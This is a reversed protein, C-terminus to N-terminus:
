EQQLPALLHCSDLDGLLQLDGLAGGAPVELGQRHGPYGDVRHLASVTAPTKQTAGTRSDGVVIAPRYVTTPLGGRM